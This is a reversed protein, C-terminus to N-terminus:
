AVQPEAAEPKHLSVVTLVALANVVYYAFDIGKFGLVFPAALFVVGVAFDVILHFSYPVVRILGTEHDTLMTLILAAVGTVVSLWFALPNSQGLNLVVPLGILGLAVPYDLYAHINKTVFRINM